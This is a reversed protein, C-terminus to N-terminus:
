FTGSFTLFGIIKVNKWCKGLNAGRGRRFKPTFGLNSWLGSAGCDEWSRFRGLAVHHGPVFRCFDLSSVDLSSVMVLHELTWSPRFLQAEHMASCFSKWKLQTDDTVMSPGWYQSAEESEHVSSAHLIAKCRAVYVQAFLSVTATTVVVRNEVCTKVRMQRWMCTKAHELKPTLHWMCFMVQLIWLWNWDLKRPEWNQSIQWIPWLPQVLTRPSQQDVLPPTSTMQRQCFLVVPSIVGCTLTQSSTLFVHLLILHLLSSFPLIRHFVSRDLLCHSPFHTNCLHTRSISM